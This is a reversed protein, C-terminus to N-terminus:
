LSLFSNATNLSNNRSTGDNSSRRIDDESSSTTTIASMTRIATFIFWDGLWKGLNLFAGRASPGIIRLAHLNRYDVPDRWLPLRQGRM